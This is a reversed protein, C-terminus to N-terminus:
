GDAADEEVSKHILLTREKLYDTPKYRDQRILNCVRWHRLAVVGSEFVYLYGKEVLLQLERTGTGCLRCISRPNGVFGDDDASMGLTFYLCRVKPPLVLFSDALVVSKAFMRREAM